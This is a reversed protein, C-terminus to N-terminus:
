SPTTVRFSFSRNEGASKRYAAGTDWLPAHQSVKPVNVDQSERIFPKRFTEQKNEPGQTVNLDLTKIQFSSLSLKLQERM